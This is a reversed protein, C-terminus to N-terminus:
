WTRCAYPTLGLARITQDNQSFESYATAYSMNTM